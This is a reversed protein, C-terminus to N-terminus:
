VGYFLFVEFKGKCKFVFCFLMAKLYFAYSGFIEFEKQPTDENIKGWGVRVLEVVEM